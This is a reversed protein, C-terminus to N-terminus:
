RCRGRTGQPHSVIAAAVLLLALIDSWAPTLYFGVATSAVGVGLSAALIGGIRGAGGVLVMALTLALQGGGMTPSITLLPSLFAGAVAGMACGGAFTITRVRGVDIGSLEAIEPNAIVARLALGPRTRIGLAMTGLLAATIAVGIAQDTNIVMRGVLLPALRFPVSHPSDGWVLLFGEEALIGLGLLVVARALPGGRVPRMLVREVVGGLVLGAAAAPVAGVFISRGSMSTQYALYAGLAMFAGHALNVGRGVRLILVMGVAALAYEAGTLTGGILLQFAAEM